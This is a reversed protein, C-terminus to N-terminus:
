TKIIKFSIKSSINFNKLEKNIEQRKEKFSSILFDDQEAQSQEKETLDEKRAIKQKCPKCLKKGPAINLSNRMM